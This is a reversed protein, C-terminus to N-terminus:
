YLLDNEDCGHDPEVTSSHGCSGCTLVSTPSPITKWAFVQEAGCHNCDNIYAAFPEGCSACQFDDHLTNVELAEFADEGQHSCSPCVINM